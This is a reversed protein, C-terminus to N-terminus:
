QRLYEVLEPNDQVLQLLRPALSTVNEEERPDGAPWISHLFEHVTFEQAKSRRLRQRVVILLGDPDHFANAENGDIEPIKSAPWREVRYVHPGIKATKPMDAKAM